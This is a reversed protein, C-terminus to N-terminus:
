LIRVAGLVYANSGMGIQNNSSAEWIAGMGNTCHIAIEGQFM